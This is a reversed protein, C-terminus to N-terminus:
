MLKITRIINGSTTIEYINATDNQVMFLTKTESSYTIGSLDDKITPFTKKSVLEYNNINISQSNALTYFFLPFCMLAIKLGYTKLNLNKM